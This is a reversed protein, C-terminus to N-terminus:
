NNSSGLVDDFVITANEYDNPPQIEDGIEKIKNKSNSYQESLSKTIKYFYQIPIQSLNKLM